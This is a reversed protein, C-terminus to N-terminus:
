GLQQEITKTLPSQVDGTHQTTVTEVLLIWCEEDAVPNHLVGRPVVYFEGPGIDVHGSEFEIRLRGRMVLFLEDEHEHSHWTFQGKVRALKVYQDNVRGVVRPSWLDTVHEFQREINVANRAEHPVAQKAVQKAVQEAM